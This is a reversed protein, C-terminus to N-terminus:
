GDARGLFREMTDRLPVSDPVRERAEEWIRRAGDHDGQRWMVEGLHAAIEADFMQSYALALYSRAEPLRDQRYFVWGYSDLIAANGPDREIARRILRYAEDHRSTRNALTYGLANLAVADDPAIAVAAAMDALAPELKGMQELLAGRALLLEIDAPRYGLAEDLLELAERDRGVRDLLGVRLRNLEFARHPYEGAVEILRALAAGEGERELTIRALAAQAPVLYPGDPVRSYFEVAQEPRAQQLSVEGLYYLLEDAFQGERLLEGFSEWAALRDGADLNILAQLRRLDPDDGYRAALEDLIQLAEGHRGTTALLRAYEVALDPSADTEVLRAMHEVAAEGEGMALLIRGILVSASAAVGEVRDDAQAAYASELALDYDGSRLAARAIALRLTGLAPARTALRTLARTVAEANGEQELEAALLQYDEDTPQGSAQLAQEAAAVAGQVDNRRLLLRALYLRASPSTPDLQVWRRAARLAYADFGYEFAFATARQSSEPEDSAEAASVYEGAATGYAGRRAAIEAMLLHYNADPVYASDNGTTPTSACGSFLLLLSVLGTIRAYGTTASSM